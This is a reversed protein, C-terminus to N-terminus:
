RSQSSTEVRAAHQLPVGRARATHQAAVLHDHIMRNAGLLANRLSDDETTAAESRYESLDRHQDDVLMVIYKRSFEEDSLLTLKQIAAQERQPLKTPLMVGQAEAAARLSENIKMQDDLVQSAVRKIDEDSGKSVALQSLAIEEFGAAMAKRLFHRDRLTAASAEVSGAEHHTTDQGRVASTGLGPQPMTSESEASQASSRVLSLGLLLGLVSASRLFHPALAISRM